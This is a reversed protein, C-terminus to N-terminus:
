SCEPPSLTILHQGRANLVEVFTISRYPDRPNNRNYTASWVSRMVGAPGPNKLWKGADSGPVAGDRVIALRGKAGTASVGALESSRGIDDRLAALDVSDRSIAVMPNCATSVAVVFAASAFFM